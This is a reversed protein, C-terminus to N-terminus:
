GKTGAAWRRSRAVAARWRDALRNRESAPMAPKFAELKLDLKLL